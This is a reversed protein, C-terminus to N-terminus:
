IEFVIDAVDSENGKIMDCILKEYITQIMFNLVNPSEIGILSFFTCDFFHAHPQSCPKFLYHM